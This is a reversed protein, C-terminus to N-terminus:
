EDENGNCIDVHGDHEGHQGLFGAAFNVGTTKNFTRVRGNVFVVFQTPGVAGMTDPPFAGTEALTAGTFQVGLAPVSSPASPASTAAREPWMSEPRANPAQPLMDRAPGEHELLLRWKGSQSPPAVAQRAMIEASTLQVGAAGAWPVGIQVEQGASPGNLVLLGASLAFVATVTALLGRLLARRNM